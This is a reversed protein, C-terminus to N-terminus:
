PRGTNPAARNPTNPRGTVPNRNSRMNRNWQSYVDPADETARSTVFRGRGTQVTRQQFVELGSRESLTAKRPVYDHMIGVLEYDKKHAHLTGRVRLHEWIFTGPSNVGPGEKDGFSHVRYLKDFEDPMVHAYRYMSGPGGSRAGTTGGHDTHRFRVYLYNSEIDYGVAWVNTSNPTRIMQGTVIPHDVPYRKRGSPTPVDVVKRPKGAATTRSIGYPLDTEPRPRARPGAEEGGRFVRGGEEEIQAIAQRLVDESLRGKPGQVAPTVKYGHAELITAMMNLQGPLGKQKGIGAAVLSRMLDGAPGLAELFLDITAKDATGGRAYKEVTHVLDGFETGMAHRLRQTPSMSQLKKIGGSLLRDVNSGGSRMGYRSVQTAASLLKGAPSKTFEAMLANRIARSAMPFLPSSLKVM